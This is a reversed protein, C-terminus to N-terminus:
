SMFLPLMTPLIPEAKLADLLKKLARMRVLRRANFRHNQSEVGFTVFQHFYLEQVPRDAQRWVDTDMLLVRYALPNNIISHQPKSFDYGVFELVLRLLSMALQSRDMSQTSVAISSKTSGLSSALHSLGLKERIITALIAYGQDREMAESNRWSKQVTQFLIKVSLAVDETTKAAHVLMLVVAACGGIRWSADDLSQPVAVLPDGTLVAIGRAQTLAENVAPVAANIVVANGGSRTYQNFNKAALKSLSKVLQSEDVNNRDEGDLVAAPSINILISSESILTSAKQRVASLIDSQEDHGPHLSEHRVNLAASAAYTQFSGLCDQFNGYYRPGLQYFVSILDDSFTEAFLVSSALSWKSSCASKAIRVALDQPTGFFAQVRAVRSTSDVPPVTPYSAKLQECFEGNVFLSAKSSSMTRPKRHVICIHYWQDPKFSVSKFRVSPRSGKIATQLIFHKTDKELYALVFCKQTADFAGFITTHARSDFEKFSAWLSLTYGSGAMPPFSKGITPLEISCYGHHSLDFHISPPCHTAQLARLLFKAAKSSTTAEAYITYADDLSGLGEQFLSLALEQYVSREIGARRDDFLLPLLHRSLGTTHLAVINRRSSCLIQLLTEPLAAGLMRWEMTQRPPCASWFNLMFPFLDPIAVIDVSHLHNSLTARGRQAMYSEISSDNGAAHDRFEKELTIFLQWLTEEGMATALLIGLYQGVEQEPATDKSLGSNVTKLASCLSQWGDGNIKKAFYRSNGAHKELSAGLVALADKLISFFSRIGEESVKTDDYCGSLIHLFSLLTQFGGARRFATKTEKQSADDILIHRLRQLVLSEHLGDALATLSQGKINQLIRVLSDIEENQAHPTLAAASDGRYRQVPTNNM